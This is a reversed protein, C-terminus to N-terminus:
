SIQPNEQQHGASMMMRSLCHLLIQCDACGWQLTSMAQKLAQKQDECLDPIAHTIFRNAAAVNLDLSPQHKALFTASELKRVKRGYFKIREQMAVGANLTHLPSVLPARSFQSTAVCQRKTCLTTEPRWARLESIFCSPITCGKHSRWTCRPASSLPWSCINSNLVGYSAAVAMLRFLSLGVSADLQKPPKTFYNNM